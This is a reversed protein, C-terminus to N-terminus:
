KNGPNEQGPIAPGLDYPNMDAVGCVYHYLQGVKAQLKYLYDNRILTYAARVEGSTTAMEHELSQIRATWEVFVTALREVEEKTLSM